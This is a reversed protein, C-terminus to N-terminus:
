ESKMGTTTFSRQIGYATGVSNTAYARLYYTTNIALGTVLSTFIGINKGDTTKSNEITPNEAMSWCVGKSTVSAGGCFTVNGGSLASTGDLITIDATTVTPFTTTTFFEEGGYAIGFANVAYAKVYYTTGTKLETIISVYTGNGNGDYTKQDGLTPNGTKNWCVGRASLQPNGGSLVKGGSVASTSSIGTTELTTVIPFSPEPIKESTKECGSFGLLILGTVFVGSCLNNHRNSKKM